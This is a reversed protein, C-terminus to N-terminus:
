GGFLGTFFDSFSHLFAMIVLVGLFAFFAFAFFQFLIAGTGIVMGAVAPRRKEHRLIGIVSIVIALGGMMAVGIRLFDDLDRAHAVPAPQEMGAAARLTSKGIEAALEGLSVGTSQQPAFPGAWFALLAAFLALSAICFGVWGFVPNANDTVPIDTM